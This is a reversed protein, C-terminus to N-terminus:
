LPSRGKFIVKTVEADWEPASIIGKRLTQPM